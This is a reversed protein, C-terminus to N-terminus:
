SGKGHSDAGSKRQVGGLAAPTDAVQEWLTLQLNKKPTECGDRPATALFNNEASIELPLEARPGAIDRRPDNERGDREACAMNILAPSRGDDDEHITQKKPNQRLRPLTQPRAHHRMRPVVPEESQGSPQNRLSVLFEFNSVQPYATCM